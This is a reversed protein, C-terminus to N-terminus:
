NFIPHSPTYITIREADRQDDSSEQLSGEDAYLELVFDQKLSENRLIFSRLLKEPKETTQIRGEYKTVKKVRLAM